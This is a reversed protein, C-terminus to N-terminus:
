DKFLDEAKARIDQIVSESVMTKPETNLVADSNANAKRAAFIDKLSIGQMISEMESAELRVLAKDLDFLQSVDIDFSLNSPQSTIPTISREKGSGKVVLTIDYNMIGIPEKTTPDVITKDFVGLGDEFLTPGAALVKIKNLEQTPLDGLFHQCNPCNTPINGKYDKSCQPCVKGVTKDLVNVYYRRRAPNYGSMKKYEEPNEIQLQKNADCIPCEEWGLCEVTIGNIYHAWKKVAKPQLVRIVNIGEQLAMFETRKYESKRSQSPEDIFSM